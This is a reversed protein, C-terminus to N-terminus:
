EDKDDRLEMLKKVKECYLSSLKAMLNTRKDELVLQNKELDQIKKDYIHQQGEIQLQFMRKRVREQENYKQFYDFM